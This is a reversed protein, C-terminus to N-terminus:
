KLGRAMSDLRAREREMWSQPYPENLVHQFKVSIPQGGGDLAPKGAVMLYAGDGTENTVWRGNQQINRLIRQRTQGEDLGPSSTRMYVQEPRINGLRRRLGETVQDADFQNPIRVGNKITERSSYLQEYALNAAEKPSSAQGSILYQTALTVGGNFYRTASANDSTQDLGVAGLSNILPAFARQVETRVDATKIGDPLLKAAEEPKVARAQRLQLVVDPPVGEMAFWGTDGTKDGVQKIAEYSGLQQPLAAYRAVSVTPDGSDLGAVFSKSLGTVVDNPLKPDVIGWTRQQAFSATIYSAQAANVAQYGEATRENPPLNHYASAAEQWQRYAAQVQPSSEVAAKGPDSNRQALIAKAKDRLTDTVFQRNERDEVGEPNPMNSVSQLEDNSLGPLQKLSAAMQQYGALQRAKLIAQAPGLFTVMEDMGPIEIPDGAKAAAEMDDIRQSFLAKDVAFREANQRNIEAMRSQAASRISLLQEPDLLRYPVTDEDSVAVDPAVQEIPGLKQLYNRTEEPMAAMDMPQKPYWWKGSQTQYPRGAAWGRTAAPGMNHAAAVLLPNGGFERMQDAIYAQGLQDHYAATEADKAADGTRGRMFLERNWPIGLTKAQQRATEELLQYKGYAHITQGSATRIAPGKLVEGSDAYMRGGSENRIIGAVVDGGDGSVKLAPESIGLLSNAIALTRDPTSEAQVKAVTLAAANANKRVLTQRQELSLQDDAMVTNTLKTLELGFAEPAQIGLQAVTEYSQTYQGTRFDVEAQQQYTAGSLMYRTRLDTAKAMILERARPNSTAESAKGAYDTIFTDIQRAIPEQGPAWSRQIRQYENLIDLQAQPELAALEANANNVETREQNEAINRLGQNIFAASTSFDFPELVRGPPGSEVVGSPTAVQSEYQNIRVAM